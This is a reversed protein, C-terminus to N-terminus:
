SLYRRLMVTITVPASQVKATGSSDVAQLQLVPAAVMDQGVASIFQSAAPNVAFSVQTGSTTVAAVPTGGAEACALVNLAATLATMSAPTQIGVICLGKAEFAETKSAGAEIKVRRIIM